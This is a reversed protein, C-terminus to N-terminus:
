CQTLLSAVLPKGREMGRIGMDGTNKQVSKGRLTAEVEEADRDGAGDAGGRARGDVRAPGQEDPEHGKTEAPLGELPQLHHAEHEQDVEGEQEVADDLRGQLEEADLLDLLQEGLLGDLM